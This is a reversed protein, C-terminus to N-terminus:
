RQSKTNTNKENIRPLILYIIAVKPPFEHNVELGNLITQSCVQTSTEAQKMTPRVGLTQLIQDRYGAQYVYLLFSNFMAMSMTSKGM